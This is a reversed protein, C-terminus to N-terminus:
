FNHAQVKSFLTADSASPSVLQEINSGATNKAESLQICLAVYKVAVTYLITNKFLILLCCAFRAIATHSFASINGFRKNGM